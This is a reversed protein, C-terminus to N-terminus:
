RIKKMFHSIYWECRDAIDQEGYHLCQEMTDLLLPTKEEEGGPSIVDRHPFGHANDYRVVPLWERGALVELQVLFDVVRGKRTVIRFRLRKKGDSGLLKIFRKEGM